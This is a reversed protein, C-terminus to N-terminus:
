LSVVVKKASVGKKQVEFAEQIKELGMGVIIPEPAAVFVGEELARLLFDEYVAKGIGNEVLTSALIFKSGVGRTKGKVWMAVNWSIFHVVIRLFAFQKPAPNLVPYTAMSIFKNGQSKDLIDMCAEAGGAGISLAGATTKGNLAQIIDHVATPKNYDFAQSAGLKKVLDFNHPSCTTIVEYGAAVALQIANCGVSTSGVWILVIQSIPKPTTPSPLALALHDDQFFACATTSLGLPIVSASEYSLTSPIPSAM